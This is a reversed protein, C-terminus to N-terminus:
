LNRSQRLHTFLEAVRDSLTGLQQCKELGAKAIAHCRDPEKLLLTAQQICESATTFFEAETGESYWREHTPTRQALFMSGCAPVEYTRMTWEDCNSESVFGLSIRSKRLVDAYAEGKVAPHFNDPFRRPLTSRKAWHSGFVHVPLGADLLRGIFTARQDMCTGVFTMPYIREHGAEPPFFLPPFIGHLWERCNKAGLESLNLIDCPRKVLHMDFLPVVQFYAEWQWRDANRDGWPNDDQFSILYANPSAQRIRHMTERSIERPWELWIIDPQLEDCARILENGLRRHNRVWMPKRMLKAVRSSIVPLWPVFQHKALVHVVEANQEIAWLRQRGSASIDAIDSLVLVKM